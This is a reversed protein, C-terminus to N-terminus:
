YESGHLLGGMLFGMPLKLNSFQSCFAQQKCKNRELIENRQELEYAKRKLVKNESLLLQNETKLIAFKTELTKNATTIMTIYKGKGGM